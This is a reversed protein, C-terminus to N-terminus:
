RVVRPPSPTALSHWLGLWGGHPLMLPITSEYQLHIALSPIPSYCPVESYVRNITNDESVDLKRGYQAFRRYLALYKQLTHRSVLFSGTTHRISRWYRDGVFQLVCPYPRHYRDPCDYPTVAVEGGVVTSKLNTYSHILRPVSEEFHLYDDELFYIAESTSALAVDIAVDFSASGARSDIQHWHFPFGANATEEQWCTVLAADSADDVAHLELRPTLDADSALSQCLSRLSRLILEPKKIDALRPSQSLAHVRACTRLVICIRSGIVICLAHSQCAAMELMIEAGLNFGVEAARTGNMVYDLIHWGTWHSGM